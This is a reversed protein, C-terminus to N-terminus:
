GDVDYLRRDHGNGDGTLGVCLSPTLMCTYIVGTGLSNLTTSRSLRAGVAQGYPASVVIRSHFLCLVDRHKVDTGFESM